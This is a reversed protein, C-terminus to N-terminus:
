STRCVIVSNRLVIGKRASSEPYLLIRILMVGLRPTVAPALGGLLWGELAEALAM